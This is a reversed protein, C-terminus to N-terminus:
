HELTHCRLHVSHTKIAVKEAEGKLEPHLGSNTCSLVHVVPMLTMSTRDQRQDPGDWHHRFLSKFIVSSISRAVKAGEVM